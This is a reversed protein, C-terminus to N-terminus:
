YRIGFTVQIFETKISTNPAYHYRSEFYLRYPAEAVRITAGIGGNVGFSSSSSTALTQNVSVFGSVCNFGWWQWAPTCVTSSGSAIPQSLNSSRHYWGVGGILYAGLLRGRLEYRYNGTVYFLDTFASLNSPSTLTSSLPLLVQSNAYLRNWQFEGVFANRRNVNYGVGATIGWGTNIVDSTDGVPANVTIGVNSNIEPNDDGREQAHLPIRCVTAILTIALVIKRSRPM